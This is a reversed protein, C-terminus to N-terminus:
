ESKASTSFPQAVSKQPLGTVASEFRFSAGALPQAALAAADLGKRATTAYVTKLDAGGFAIKTVNAVPFRVTEVLLGQASYRRVGWGGFLGTWLSGESDVVPGDPWGAGDEIEVFVRRNDLAGDASVDFAYIIKKLTDTHYLVRGDPSFAPGNTIVYGSDMVTLGRGDLRYLAGTSNEEGDDMSGFWLRGHPDVAGDNLRNGALDPEITRLFEFRGDEPNFDYLGTKAGALFHGNRLPAIFGVQSPAEWSQRTGGNGDCAHLQNKKIDTFWLRDQWWIPGEGLEAALPWLPEPTTLGM